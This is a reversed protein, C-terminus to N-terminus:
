KLNRFSESLNEAENHLPLWISEIKDKNDSVENKAEDLKDKFDLLIRKQEQQIIKNLENFCDQIMISFPECFDKIQEMMHEGGKLIHKPSPLEKYEITKTALFLTWWTRKERSKNKVSGSLEIRKLEPIPLDSLIHRGLYLKWQPVIIDIETQLYNLYQELLYNMADHIRRNELKSLMNITEILIDNLGQYFFELGLEYKDEDNDKKLLLYYDCIGFLRKQIHSPLQEVITNSCDNDQKELRKYVVKLIGIAPQLNIYWEALPRLKDQNIERYIDIECLDDIFFEFDRYNKKENDFLEDTVGKLQAEANGILDCLEADQEALQKIAKEYDDKSGNLTSWTTRSAEGIADNVEKKFNDVISPLVLTDFHKKIHENLNNFFEGGYSNKWVLNSVNSFDQESWENHDRPLKNLIEKDILKNFESELKEVETIRDTNKKIKSARLAPLSSLLSYSLDALSDRHEPLEKHLTNKIEEKVKTVMESQRRIPDDDNLFIDIRNLIFMMRSPSGGMSKVQQLVENVLKIRKDEDTEEMNYAVLCLAHRCNEIVKTNTQDQQNRLGPLDMLKFITNKPIGTTNLLNHSNFFDIPFDLDIIPTEPQNDGKNKNFTDMVKTLKDKIDTHSINHWDGCEWLAGKTKHVKLYCKNNLSHKINVVGASMEQSMRPMIDAGCLLNIITSKGSSTTGTTALILTPNKIDHQLKSLAKQVKNDLFQLRKKNFSKSGKKGECIGQYINKWQQYINEAQEELESFPNKIMKTKPKPKTVSNEVKSLSSLVQNKNKLANIKKLTLNKNRKVKAKRAKQRNSKKRM